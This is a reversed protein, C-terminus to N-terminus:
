KGLHEHFFAIAKAWGKTAANLNAGDRGSQQRFFGHGAGPFAEHEFSKGQAKLEKEADPITTNVRADDGAYLGLIPANANKLLATDPAGGYCVVAADLDPQSVAYLFSTSGGWCFGICGVKGTAAPLKLGYDRAANLRKVRDENPLARVKQAASGEGEVGSIMDPAIAIFGQSALHDTVSNSWDTMGFIEHIVLVVPAKDPREPYVVWLKLKTDEGPVYISVFEGHRPSDALASEAAGAAPPIAIDQAGAIGVWVMLLPLIWRSIKNMM